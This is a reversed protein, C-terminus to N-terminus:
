LNVHRCKLCGVNITMLTVMSNQVTRLWDRHWTIERHYKLQFSLWHKKFRLNQIFMEIAPQEEALGPVQSFAASQMVYIVRFIRYKSGHGWYSNGHSCTLSSVATLINVGFSFWRDSHGVEWQLASHLGFVTNHMVVTIQNKDTFQSQNRGDSLNFETYNSESTQQIPSKNNTWYNPHGEKGVLRWTLGSSSHNVLSQTHKHRATTKNYSGNHQAHLQWLSCYHDQEKKVRKPSFEKRDTKLTVFSHTVCVNEGFCLILCSRFRM